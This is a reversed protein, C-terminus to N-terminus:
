RHDFQAVHKGLREVAEMYAPHVHYHRVVAGRHIDILFDPSSARLLQDFQDAPHEIMMRVARTTLTFHQKQSLRVLDYADIIEVHNLRGEIAADTGTYKAFCVYARDNTLHQDRMFGEIKDEHTGTINCDDVFVLAKDAVFERNLFMTDQSLLRARDEKALHAYNDYYTTIRHVPTWETPLKGDRHLLTNLRNMMHRALLTAAAPVIASSPAPIIVVTKEFFEPHADYFTEAMQYGMDKAAIDDGFKLRSYAATDFPATALDDFHNAAFHLEMPFSLIAAQTNM